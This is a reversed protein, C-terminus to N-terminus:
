TIFAVNGDNNIAQLFVQNPTLFGFRKRPRNNLKNEVYKIHSETILNFDYNKPFYQRILGNFNENAGREWSHYPRAFFYDVGLKATIEKHMSFEKGNDSTITKLFPLLEELIKVSKEEVEQASKTDLLAIKGKGSARDLATLLAKKHNKGIVLDIEIDGIRVKEEVIKPRNEIGIRDPIQGRKDKSAGRKRYRKGKTRLHKYLNGGAKKDKWIHLYITEHSVCKQANLRCYGVIQEPSYDEQLLNEVFEKIESTFRINKQKIKHRNSCKKEALEAFYKGSRQDCNRKLERSIVSKNRGIRNAIENQTFGEKLLTEIKYRQEVTLHGMKTFKPRPALHSFKVM